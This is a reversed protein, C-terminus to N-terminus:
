FARPGYNQILVARTSCDSADTYIKFLLDFVPCALFIDYLIKNEFAEEKVPECILKKKETAKKM